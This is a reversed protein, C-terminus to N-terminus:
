VKKNCQSELEICENIADDISVKNLTWEFEDLRCVFIKCEPLLEAFETKTTILYDKNFSNRVGIYAEKFCSKNVPQYENNQRHINRVARVEEEYSWYAPKYLFTRQLTELLHPDFHFQLGEFFFHNNTNNFPSQPKTATYIISGYKVPILNIGEDNLGAEDIDIGLVIGAHSSNGHDLQIGLGGSKKEGKGYHAWMLPNLPNRTLSLIGYSEAAVFYQRKKNKCERISDCYLSTLEFPDNFSSAKSFKLTLNKIIKNASDLDVYKYLIM